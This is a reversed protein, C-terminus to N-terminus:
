KRVMERYEQQATYALIVIDDDDSQHPTSFKAKPGNNQRASNLLRIVAGRAQDHSIMLPSDLEISGEMTDKGSQSRRRM